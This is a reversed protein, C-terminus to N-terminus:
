RVVLTLERVSPRQPEPYPSEEGKITQWLIRNFLDDDSADVTDLDLHASAAAAPANPPNLETLPVESVLPKWPTLDPEAAFIERLPRGYHDFQSLRGLGLIEEVTALVDTTNVFRHHVGPRNYASITLLVSRHSDVHDPGAQADDELVFVVTNKWYPSKSLAEVIRGLALDNDAMAARPTPKGPRAGSTHDNPLHLVELAPMRGSKVYGQLERIWVDARKQDSIGMNFSPYDPSTFPRLAPKTSRYRPPEVPKGDAGVVPEGLEGYIRVSKGKKAALTWVYGGAPEDVEGEDAEPRRDSYGSFVTKETYDTVYASTSWPHGQSSVEANVFFRDYLGFREALAHHNPSTARPFFLLAPDGDGQPLDALVQDYTRNEKIVYVVHEFPPYKASARTQDWGNARAVRRSLGALAAPSAVEALPAAILTGHIQGLTYDTSTPPLKALPQVMGPNPGTGRGKANLVLLSDGHSDHHSEHFLLIGTPYWGVPIRGTLRDRGKAKAVGATQAGLDFVAVANSDAEAVYLRTGDAALALANPTSGEHPGAPAADSLTKVVKRRATSVVDITDTTACAVFIRTGKANLALASPHRGVAITGRPKLDGTGTPRFVSLSAAGWNSVYVTGDPALAVAYPYHGTKLRQLIKGSPLELVALQDGVNEAVYLRRGDQSVALGAAYRSGSKGAEKAALVFTGTPTAKGEAWGYRYVVDEDGGSAYLTKGDKAFALGYFAAAQPLTQTVQGSELDIVQVGQERWGSLLVILHRGDPAPLFHIPFNGLDVATGVPDLRLGTPLRGAADPSAEQANAAAIAAATLSLLLSASRLTSSIKM